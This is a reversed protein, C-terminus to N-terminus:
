CWKEALATVVTWNRNTSQTGALKEIRANNLKAEHSPKDFWLHVDRGVVVMREGEVDWGDMEKAQRASPKERLFTVYHRADDGLPNPPSAEVLEVLEKPRRVITPIDIGFAKSLEEELRTEVKAPSRLPSDVRVNGSQIYTVVDTFGAQGLHERLRAM